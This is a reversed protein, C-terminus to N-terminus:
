RAHGEGRSFAERLTRPPTFLRIIHLPAATAVLHAAITLAAVIGGWRLFQLGYRQLQDGSDIAPAQASVDVARYLGGIRGGPVPVGPVTSEYHRVGPDAFPLAVACGTMVTLLLLVYRNSM